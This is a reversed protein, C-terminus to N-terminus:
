PHLRQLADHFAPNVRANPLVACVDRFAQTVAVGQKRAGYLAAVAPTRREAQACHVLVSRGEGRLQEVLQVTDLLVFDLNPNENAKDNDAALHHLLSVGAILM